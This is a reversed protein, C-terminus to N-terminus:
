KISVMPHEEHAEAPGHLLAPAVEVIGKIQLLPLLAATFFYILRWTTDPPSHLVTSLTGLGLLSFLGLGATGVYSLILLVAGPRPRGSAALALGIVPGGLGGAAVGATFFGTATVGLALAAASNVGAAVLHLVVTPVVDQMRRYGVGRGGEGAM